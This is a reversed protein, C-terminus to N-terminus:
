LVTLRSISVIFKRIKVLAQGKNYSKGAAAFYIIRLDILKLGEYM